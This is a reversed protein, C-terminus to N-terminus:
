DCSGSCFCLMIGVKIFKLITVDKHELMWNLIQQQDETLMSPHAAKATHVKTWSVLVSSLMQRAAQQSVAAGRNSTVAQADATGTTSEDVPTGQTSCVFNSMDAETKQMDPLLASKCYRWDQGTLVTPM